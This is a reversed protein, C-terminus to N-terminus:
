EVKRQSGLAVSSAVAKAAPGVPSKDRVSVLGAPRASPTAPSHCLPKAAAPICAPTNAATGPVSMIGLYCNLAAETIRKHRIGPLAQLEGRKILNLVTKYDVKLLGSVEVATYIKVVDSM